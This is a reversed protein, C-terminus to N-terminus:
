PKQKPRHAQRFTESLDPKQAPAPERMQPNTRNIANQMRAKATNLKVFRKAVRSQVNRQAQKTLAEKLDPRAGPPIPHQMSSARQQLLQDAEGTIWLLQHREVHARMQEKIRGVREEVVALRRVADVNGDTRGFPAPNAERFSQRVHPATPFLRERPGDERDAM